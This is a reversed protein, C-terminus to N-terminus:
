RGDWAPAPTTVISKQMVVPVHRRVWMVEMGPPQLMPAHAPARLRPTRVLRIDEKPPHARLM